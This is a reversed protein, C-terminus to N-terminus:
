DSIYLHMVCRKVTTKVLEKKKKYPTLVMFVLPLNKGRKIASRHCILISLKPAKVISTFNLDFTSKKMTKTDSHLKMPKKSKSNQNTSTYQPKTNLKNSTVKIFM